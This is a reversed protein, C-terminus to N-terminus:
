KHGICLVNWLGSKKSNDTIAKTYLETSDLHRKRCALFTREVWEGMMRNAFGEEEKGYTGAGVRGGRLLGGLHPNVTSSVTDCAGGPLVIDRLRRWRVM